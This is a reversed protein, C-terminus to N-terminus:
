RIAHAGAPQALRDGLRLLIQGLSVRVSRRGSLPRNPLNRSAAATRRLDALRQEALLELEYTMQYTM